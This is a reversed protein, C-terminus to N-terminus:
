TPEEEPLKAFEFSYHSSSREVPNIEKNYPNRISSKNAINETTYNANFDKQTPKKFIQWMFAEVFKQPGFKKGILLYNEEDIFKPFFGMHDCLDLKYNIDELKKNIRAIDNIFRSLKLGLEIQETEANKEVLKKLFSKQVMVLERDNLSKISSKRVKVYKSMELYNRILDAKTGGLNERLRDISNKLDDSIRVTIVHPTETNTSSEKKAM